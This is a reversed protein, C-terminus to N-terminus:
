KLIYDLGLEKVKAKAPAGDNTWGRVAYYRDLFGPLDKVRAAENPVGDVILNETLMRVPLTDDKRGFGERVNFAREMNLIREGVKLLYAPDAAQKVGTAAALMKGYIDPVWGWGASFACIIGIENMAAHDQNYVVVDANGEEFRNVKKPVPAGWVDQAGYGYCHSAGINSTAYNFGMNKAGRPEYAAPEMGKCHIAYKESGKGIIDAARKVGEALINGIGERNGIKRILKMM